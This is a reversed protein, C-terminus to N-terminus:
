LGPVLSLGRRDAWRRVLEREHPEIIQNCRRRAEVVARETPAVRLTVRGTEHGDRFMRISWISVTGARAARAYNFVCHRMAQGEEFLERFSRLELITCQADEIGEELRMAPLSSAWRRDFDTGAALAQKRAAAERDALQRREMARLLAPVPLELSEGESHRNRAYELLPRVQEARFGPSRAIKEFLKLWPEALLFERQYTAM